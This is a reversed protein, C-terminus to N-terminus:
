APLGVRMAADGLAILLVVLAGISVLWILSRVNPVHFVYAPVYLVRAVLWVVAAIATWQSSAGVAALGLVAAAFVPFTELLNARARDARLARDSLTPPPADRPGAAWDPAALAKPASAALVQALVLVGALALCLLETTM